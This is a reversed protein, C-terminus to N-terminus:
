GSSLFLLAYYTDADVAAFQIMNAPLGGLKTLNGNQPNYRYVAHNACHLWIYGDESASIQQPIDGGDFRLAVKRWSGAFVWLQGDALSFLQDPNGVPPLQIPVIGTDRYVNETPDFVFLHEDSSLLAIVYLTGDLGFSYKSAGGPVGPLLSWHGAITMWASETRDFIVVSGRDGARIWQILCNIGNFNWGSSSLPERQLHCLEGDEYILLAESQKKGNLFTALPAKVTAKNSATIADTHIFDETLMSSYTLIYPKAM